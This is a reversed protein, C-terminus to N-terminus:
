PRAPQQDGAVARELGAGQVHETGDPLRQWARVPPLLALAQRSAAPPPPPAVPPDPAFSPFVPHHLADSLAALSAPYNQIRYASTSGFDQYYVLMKCRPHRHVWIM